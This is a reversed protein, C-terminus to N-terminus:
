GSTDPAARHIKLGDCFNKVSVVDARAYHFVGCKEVCENAERDPNVERSRLSGRIKVIQYQLAQTKFFSNPYKSFSGYLFDYLDM